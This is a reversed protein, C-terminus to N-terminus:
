SLIYQMQETQCIKEDEIFMYGISELVTKIVSFIRTDFIRASFVSTTDESVPWSYLDIFHKIQSPLLYQPKIYTISGDTYHKIEPLSNHYHLIANALILYGYGDEDFIMWEPVQSVELHGDNYRYFYYIKNFENSARLLSVSGDTIPNKGWYGKFYDTKKLYEIKDDELESGRWKLNQVTAKWIHSLPKNQIGSFEFLTVGTNEEHDCICFAGAGSMCYDDSLSYGRTLQLDDVTCVTYIPPSVRNPSHYFLGSNRFIKEISANFAGLSEESDLTTWVEPYMERYANITRKIRNNFHMMTICEADEVEDFLSAYASQCVASYILRRKYSKESENDGRYIGLEESIKYLLKDYKNM